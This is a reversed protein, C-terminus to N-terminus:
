TPARREGGALALAISATASAAVPITFAVRLGFADAALGLVLPGVISGVYAATVVIPLATRGHSRAIRGAAGFAAPVVTGLGLGLVAFAVITVAVDGIALALGLAAAATAAGIAALRTRGFRAGLRDGTFRSIAMGASFAVVGGGATAAAAGIGERLLVASWEIAAGEVLFSGAAVACLLVIRRRARATAPADEDDVPERTREPLWRLMPWSAVVAVIAAAPLYVDVTAGLGIGLAAAGSGVLVAVSWVGHLSSMVPRGMRREVTVAEANMAVDALGSAIGVLCFIAGLSVLGNALPLLAFAAAMAPLAIRVVGRGGVRRMARDAFRTGGVLGIAYGALALGLDGADLGADTKIRPIWPGLTGAILAHTGFASAVGVRARAASSREADHDAVTV